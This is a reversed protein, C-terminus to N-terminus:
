AAATAAAAEARAGLAAQRDGGGGGGGGGVASETPAGACRSGCSRSAALPRLSSARRCLCDASCCTASSRASSCCASMSRLPTSTPLLAPPWPPLPGPPCPQACARSHPGAPHRPGSAHLGGAPGPGMDDRRRGPRRGRHGLLWACQRGLSPLSTRSPCQHVKISAARSQKLGGGKSAVGKGRRAGAGGGRGPGSRSASPRPQPPQPPSSASAPWTSRPSTLLLCAPGSKCRDGPHDVCHM